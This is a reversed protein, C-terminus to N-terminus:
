LPYNDAGVVVTVIKEVTLAKMNKEVILSTKAVVAVTMMIQATTVVIAVVVTMMIQAAVAVIAVAVTMM